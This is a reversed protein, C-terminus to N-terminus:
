RTTRQWSVAPLDAVTWPVTKSAGTTADVIMANGSHDQPVELISTGDPSWEWSQFGNTSTPGVNHMAGTAVDVVGIPNFDEGGDGAHNIWYQFAIRTGDPSWLPSNLDGLPNMSAAGLRHLDSGDANMVILHWAERDSRSQNLLVLLKSGDPSWEAGKMERFTVPSTAPDLITRLGTGDSRVAMLSPRAGARVFVIEDGNPPRFAATSRFNYGLGITVPGSELQASLNTPEATKSTDYLLMAGDSSVVLLRDGRASWGAFTPDPIPTPNLKLPASGDVGAILLDVTGDPAHHLYLVRSGDQSFLPDSNGSETILTMTTTTELDGLLVRGEADLFAIMGNSAPGYPVVRPKNLSGAVLAAVLAAVVLLAVLVGLRWPIRPVAGLRQTLVSMPLWREPFTWGPRQRTAATRALVDDTYDPLQPGALEELLEPLRREFRDFTTM